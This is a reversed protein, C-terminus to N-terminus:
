LARSLLDTDPVGKSAQFIYGNLLYSSKALLQLINFLICEKRPMDHAEKNYFALEIVKLVFLIM